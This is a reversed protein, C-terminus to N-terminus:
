VTHVPHRQFHIEGPKPLNVAIHRAPNVAFAGNDIVRHKMPLVIIVIQVAVHVSLCVTGTGNKHIRDILRIKCIRISNYIPMM